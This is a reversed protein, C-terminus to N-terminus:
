KAILVPCYAEKAVSASVSGLFLQKLGSKGSNGVIILDAGTQQAFSCISEVPNGELIKFCGEVHNSSLIERAKTEAMSSSNRVISHTSDTPALNNREIAIPQIQSPDVYLADNSFGAIRAEGIPVNEVKENFVHVVTLRTDNLSKVLRCAWNLAEKGGESGDYAAIIHKLDRTM